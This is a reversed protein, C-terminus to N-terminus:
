TLHTVLRKHLDPPTSVDCLTESTIGSCAGSCRTQLKDPTRFQQVPAPSFVIPQSM